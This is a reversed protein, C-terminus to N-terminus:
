ESRGGEDAQGRRKNAMYVTMVESATLRWGNRVSGDKATWETQELTGVASLAGGKALKRMREVGAETFVAVGVFIADAGASVRLTATAFATGNAAKREVPDGVLTGTILAAIM